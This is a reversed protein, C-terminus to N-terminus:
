VAAMAPHGTQLRARLKGMAQKEIQRVREKSLSLTEGLRSLTIKEEGFFRREIIMRERENLIMLADALVEKQRQHDLRMAATIDPTDREDPILDQRETDGDESLFSNLSQDRRGLRATM